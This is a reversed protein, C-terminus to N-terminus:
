LTNQKATLNDYAFDETLICAPLIKTFNKDEKAATQGSIRTKCGNWWHAAQACCGM